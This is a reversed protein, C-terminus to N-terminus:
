VYLHFFIMDKVVVHLSMNDEFTHCIYVMCGCVNGFLYHLERELDLAIGELQVSNPIRAVRVLLDLFRGIIRSLM